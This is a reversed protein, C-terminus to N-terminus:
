EESRCQVVGAVGPAPDRPTLPPARCPIRADSRGAPSLAARLCHGTRPSLRCPAARGGRLQPRDPCLTYPRHERNLAKVHEIAITLYQPIHMEVDRWALDHTEQAAIPYALRRQQLTDHAQQGGSRTRDDEM